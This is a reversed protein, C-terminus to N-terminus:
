LPFGGNIKIGELNDGKVLSLGLWEVKLGFLKFPKRVGVAFGLENVTGLNFQDRNLTTAFDASDSFQSLVYFASIKAKRGLVNWDVLREWALGLDVRGFSSSVDNSESGAGVLAAGFVLKNLNDMELEYRGRVGGAYIWATDGTGMDKGVGTQLFPRLTARESPRYIIELGPVFTVTQLNDTRLDTSNLWGVTVPLLVNYGLQGVKGERLRFNLPATIYWVQENDINYRGTGMWTAFEYGPLIDKPNAAHSPTSAYLLVPLLIFLSFPSRRIAAM